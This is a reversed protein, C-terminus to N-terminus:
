LCQDLWGCGTSTLACTVSETTGTPCVRALDLEPGCDDPTCTGGDPFVEVPPKTCEIINACAGGNLSGCQAPQEVYGPACGLDLIATCASADCPAFSTVGGGGSTGGPDAGSGSSGPVSGSSGGVSGPSSGTSGPVGGPSTGPAGPTWGCTGSADASCTGIGASDLTPSDDCSVPACPSTYALATANTAGNGDGKKATDSGGNSGCATTFLALGLASFVFRNM